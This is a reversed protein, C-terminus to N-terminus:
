INSTLYNNQYFKAITSNNLKEEISIVRIYIEESRLNNALADRVVQRAELLQNNMELAWSLLILNEPNCKIKKDNIALQLAEPYDKPDDRELLLRILENHPTYKNKALDDRLIIESQKYLSTAFTNEGMLKHIRAEKLLYLIKKSFSFATSYYKVASLYNKNKELVQGMLGLAFSSNPDIRLSEKLLIQANHLSEKKFYYHNIYFQAFMARTLSAQIPDDEEIKIADNFDLLSEEYRGQESLVIARYTYAIQSPTINILADAYHNADVLNSLALNAKVLILFAEPSQPKEKLIKQALLISRTFQQQVQAVEAIIFYATTNLIPKFHISKYAYNQAIKFDNNNGSSKGLELYIRAMASLTQYDSPNRKLKKQYNIIQKQLYENQQEFSEIKLPYTYAFPSNNNAYFWYMLTALSLATVSFITQKFM